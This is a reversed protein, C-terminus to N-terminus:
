DPYKDKLGYTRDRLMKGFEELDTYQAQEDPM